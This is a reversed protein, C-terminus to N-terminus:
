PPKTLTFGQAGPTKVRSFYIFRLKFGNGDSQEPDFRSISINTANNCLLLGFRRSHSCPLILIRVESGRGGGGGWFFSNTITMSVSKQKLEYETRHVNLLPTIRVLLRWWPWDRVVMFKRVNRQVCRVAIDNVKRKAFDKRAVYGRCRAQLQTFIGSLKEDRQTELSQLVTARFFIQM